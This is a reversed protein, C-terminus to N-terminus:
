TEETPNTAGEDIDDAGKAVVRSAL